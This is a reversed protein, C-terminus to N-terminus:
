TGVSFRLLPLSRGTVSGSEVAGIRHAGMARYFGEAHPEAEIRLATFGAARTSEVAHEWLRRGVGRGIADPDVWMHDLEAEPPEGIVACFGLVRGGAQAVAVRHGTIYEPAITLDPRWADLLKKEYGWYAKSRLALATLLEAEDPRAPRVEVM